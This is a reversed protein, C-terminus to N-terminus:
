GAIAGASGRTESEPATVSGFIERLRQAVRSLDEGRMRPFFPLSLIRDFVREAVPFDGRKYGYTNRYYSMLHLPIFHVSTGINRRRLE